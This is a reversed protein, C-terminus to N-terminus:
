KSEGIINEMDGCKTCKLWNIRFTADYDGDPYEEYILKAECNCKDCWIKLSM